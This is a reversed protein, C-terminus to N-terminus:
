PRLWNSDPKALLRANNYAWDLPLCTSSIYFTDHREVVLAVDARQKVELSIPLLLQIMNQYYQPVAVKYNRQVRKKAYEIAGDLAIRQEYSSREQFSEPFRDINHSLIHEYRVRIPLCPNFVLDERKSGEFYDTVEPINPFSLLRRDSELVFAELFWREKDPRNNLRFYALIDEQEETLLGTNFCGRTNDEEDLYIIKNEQKLRKYTNNLYNYLIPYPYDVEINEYAWNENEALIVLEDMREDMLYMDDNLKSM